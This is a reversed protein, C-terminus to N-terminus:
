LNVSIELEKDFSEADGLQQELRYAVIERLADALNESAEELTEGQSHVGPMERIFAHFGGEECPEFVATLINVTEFLRCYGPRYTLPLFCM